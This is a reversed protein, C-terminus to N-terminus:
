RSEQYCARCLGTNASRAGADKPHTRPKGCSICPVMRAIRSKQRVAAQCARCVTHRDRRHKEFRNFPFDEDLKFVHCVVCKLSHPMVTTSAHKYHCARCRLNLNVGHRTSPGGCDPCVGHRQWEAARKAARAGYEANVVQYIRTTSVGFAEALRPGSEGSAYRERAEDHDFIRPRSM